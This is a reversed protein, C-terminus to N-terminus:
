IIIDLDTHLSLRIISKKEWSCRNVGYSYFIVNGFSFIKSM